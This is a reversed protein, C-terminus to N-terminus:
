PTEDEELDEPLLSMLAEKDPSGMQALRNAQRTLAKEFLNRVDRANGFNEDRNEYLERFLETAATDAEPTLRYGNNQCMSQFIEMMQAGTYDDFYFYRNFRSQLGPNSDIFRGMLETYGAVVVVLDKRHDEMGKLLVEVAERGFDNGANEPTLAYAEDIFLVGGLAKQIAEGTKLATQGVFGAVLGQRDVEVLQGKSLVGIAKYLGALLRAVTTKGTGPNGMFVMHLSLPPTPLGAEERLRRVKVLNILSHVERKVQDLGCLEDLQALLEELTPEDAAAEGQASATTQPTAEAKVPPPSSPTDTPPERTIFASLDVKHSSPSLGEESRRASFANTCHLIFAAENSSVQGDVAAFLLLILSFDYVFRGSLDGGSERDLRCLRLFFAPISFGPYRDASSILEWYLISPPTVDRSYIANYYEVHSPSISVSSKQWVGLACQRFFPDAEAFFVNRAAADHLHTRFAGLMDQYQRHFESPSLAQSM